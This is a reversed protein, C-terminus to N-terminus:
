ETDLIWEQCMAQCEDIRMQERLFKIRDIADSAVQDESYYRITTSKSSPNMPTHPQNM